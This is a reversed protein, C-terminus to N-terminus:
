CTPALFSVCPVYGIGGLGYLSARRDVQLQEEIQSLIAERGVFHNDRDFPVSFIPETITSSVLMCCDAAKQLM